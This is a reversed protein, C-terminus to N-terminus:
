ALLNCISNIVLFGHGVVIGGHSKEGKPTYKFASIYVGDETELGLPEITYLNKLEPIFTLILLPIVGICLISISILLGLKKKDSRLNKLTVM